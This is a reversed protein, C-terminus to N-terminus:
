AADLEKFTLLKNRYYEYQKRRAQIAAPLGFTIDSELQEFKDLISSIREQRLPDPIPVEFKLLPRLNLAPITGVARLKYLESESHKLYHYLYRYNVEELPNRLVFCSNGAWFPTTVFSVSGISGRSAIVISNEPSNFESYFGTPESGGNYVPYLFDNGQRDKKVFEGSYMDCISGLEVRSVASAEDFLKARLTEFLSTRGELEAELEAELETFKDLISVIEKQVVLPPVPISYDQRIVSPHAKVTYNYTKSAWLDFLVHSLYKTDLINPELVKLWGSVNTVSYKHPPRYFFRGGGDVSWTIREDDFMFKGYRGFEGEGAASSSYVPFDGPTAALDTKSIVSGRGLKLIGSDELDGLLRIAVGEPCLEQILKEIKNV